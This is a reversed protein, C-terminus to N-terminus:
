ECYSTSQVSRRHTKDFHMSIYDTMAIDETNIEYKNIQELTLTIQHSKEHLCLSGTPSVKWVSRLNESALTSLFDLVERQTSFVTISPQEIWSSEGHYVQYKFNM